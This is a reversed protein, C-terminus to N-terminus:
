GYINNATLAEPSTDSFFFEEHQGVMQTQRFYMGQKEDKKKVSNLELDCQEDMWWEHM